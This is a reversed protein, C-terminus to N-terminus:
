VELCLPGALRSSVGLHPRSLRASGRCGSIGGQSAHPVRGLTGPGAPSVSSLRWALPVARCVKSGPLEPTMSWNTNVRALM